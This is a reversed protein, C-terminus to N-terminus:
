NGRRWTSLPVEGASTQRGDAETFGREVDPLLIVGMQADALQPLQPRELVFVAAQLPQDGVEREVLVRERLRQSFPRFGKRRRSNAAHNM